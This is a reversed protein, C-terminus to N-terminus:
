PKVQAMLGLPRGEPDNFHALWEETGDSHRHILHPAATFALGRASLGEYAARIDEVRLYLISEPGPHEQVQLYLRTGACDFFALTGFTYLHKLGLTKGYFAESEKLDRVGRSIQALPGLNLNMRMPLRARQNLASRAPARFWRRLAQRNAVGLKGVANAVHYKAADLSVGRRRAIERNSLGHQIAHVVRWEAPTLLDPHPPRGRRTKGPM